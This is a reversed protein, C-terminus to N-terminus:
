ELICSIVKKATERAAGSMYEAVSEAIFEDVSFMAYYSLLGGAKKLNEDTDDMSWKELGCREVSEAYLKKIDDIQDASLTERIAHGIEHCITHSTNKTSWFGSDFQEAAEKAMIEIVNKSSVDNQKLVLMKRKPLYGAAFEIDDGSVYVGNLVNKNHLNGFTEYARALEQNVLNACDLNIAAYESSAALGLGNLYKRAEEITEAPKFKESVIKDSKSINTLNESANLYKKKYEDFDAEKDLEFFKAREKLTELETENLAWRARQLLACRCNVVQGAGGNPDGPFMLGNSFPEDMERIEGDVKKHAPRTDGDLTSDWQKLVDAGREKAAEGADMSSQVQIRHGETRAIRVANNYGINTEGSILRAIQEHTQGTSIGRSVQAAIRTKLKKVDEGLRAYLGDSLKSDLQVARVVAAADIPAIVPIGQGAFDYMTGVFGDDYCRRMYDSITKFEETQLNDLVASVQKKLAEQYEKQYIKSQMMSEFVAKTEADTEFMANIWNEEILENLEKIDKEITELSDKYVAKLEKIVAEENDLFREQVLKQRKNM